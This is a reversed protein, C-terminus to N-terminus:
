HKQKDNKCGEKYAKSALKHLKKSIDYFAAKDNMCIGELLKNKKNRTILDENYLIEVCNILSKKIM